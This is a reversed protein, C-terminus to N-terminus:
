LARALGAGAALRQRVVHQRVGVELHLPGDRHEHSGGRLPGPRVATLSCLTRGTLSLRAVSRRPSSIPPVQSSSFFDCLVNGLFKSGGYASTFASNLLGIDEMEFGLEAKMSVQSASVGRRGVTYLFYGGFLLAFVLRQYSQLRGAPPEEAVLAMPEAAKLQSV